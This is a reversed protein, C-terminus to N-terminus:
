REGSMLLGFVVEHFNFYLAGDNKRNQQCHCHATLSKAQM